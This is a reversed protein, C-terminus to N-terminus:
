GHKNECKIQMVLKKIVFVTNNTKVSNKGRINFFQLKVSIM